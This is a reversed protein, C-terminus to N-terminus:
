GHANTAEAVAPWLVTATTGQGPSSALNIQGGHNRVISAAIPLGLGTGQGRQKTTFFPNFVANMHEPAIGSGRDALEVRVKGGPAVSATLRLRGGPESADCANLLLNVLVQQLQDPDAALMPLDEALTVELAVGRAELKWRLLDRAREVALALSVARQDQAPRRSFDLIQRMTSSVNDVHKIIIALDEALPGAGVGRLVQEARGRIVGLPTGIEHAMETSLVGVTILKEARVLQNELDRASARARAYRLEGELVVARRQQRLIVLGIGGVALAAAIAALVIRTLLWQERELIARTSAIWTVVWSGTPRDVRESVQVAPADGLGLTRAAESGLQAIATTAGQFQGKVTETDITRCGGSTECGAWEVGGPDTVFLRADALPPWSGAGLFMAADSAVM